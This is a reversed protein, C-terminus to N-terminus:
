PAAITEPGSSEYGNPHTLHWQWASEIIQQLNSHVPRWGLVADAQSADAVLEAPDGTRRQENKSDIACKTVQRAAEIVELVSFGVGNGLNLSVSPRERRLYDLALVHAM